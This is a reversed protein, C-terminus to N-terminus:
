RCNVPSVAVTHEERGGNTRGVEDKLRAKCV